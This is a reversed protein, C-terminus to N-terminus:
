IIHEKESEVELCLKCKIEKQKPLEGKRFFFDLEKQLSNTKQHHMGLKHLKYITNGNIKLWSLLSFV